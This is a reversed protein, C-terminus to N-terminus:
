TKKEGLEIYFRGWRLILEDILEGDTFDELRSKRYSTLLQAVIEANISRLNKEASREIKERLDAPLRVGFPNIDKYMRWAYNSTVDHLLCMM